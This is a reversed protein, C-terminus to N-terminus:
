SWHGDFLEFFAVHVRDDFFDGNAFDLCEFIELVFVHNAEFLGELSVLFEVDDELVHVLCNQLHQLVRVIRHSEVQSDDSFQNELHELGEIVEVLVFDDVAIHLRLIQQDVLFPCKLEAIEPKSTFDRTQATTAHALYDESSSM